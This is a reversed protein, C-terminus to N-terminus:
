KRKCNKLGRAKIKGGIRICNYCPTELHLGCKEKGSVLVRDIGMAQAEMVGVM